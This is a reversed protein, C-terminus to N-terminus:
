FWVFTLLFVVNIRYGSKNVSIWDSSRSSDKSANISWVFLICMVRVYYATYTHHIYRFCMHLALIAFCSHSRAFIKMEPREFHLDCENSVNGFLDTAHMLLENASPTSIKLVFVETSQRNTALMWASDWGDGNPPTTWKIVRTTNPKDCLTKYTSISWSTYCRQVTRTLKRCEFRICSYVLLTFSVRNSMSM